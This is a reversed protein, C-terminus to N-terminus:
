VTWDVKGTEALHRLTRVAQEATITRWVASGLTEYDPHNRAYFLRTVDSDGFQDTLGSLGLWVVTSSDETFASPHATETLKLRIANTWGAICAVTNCNHGTHDELITGNRLNTVSIYNHMNFGLWPISHQEIADAVLLIRSKNM